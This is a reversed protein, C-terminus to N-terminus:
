YLGGVEQIRFKLSRATKQTQLARNTDCRTPFGRADHSMFDNSIIRPRESSISERSLLMYLAYQM